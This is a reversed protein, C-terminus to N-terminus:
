FGVEDASADLVDRLSGNGKTAATPKSVPGTLGRVNGRSAAKARNLSQQSQVRAREAAVTDEFTKPNMRRAMAYAEALDTNPDAKYLTLIYPLHDDFDPRLPKGDPGKEDAFRDINWRTSALAQDEAKKAETARISQIESKLAQLEGATRGHQDALYRVAPDDKVGPPLPVQPPPNSGVFLKAPDFGMQQALEIMLTIRDNVDPSVARKHMHAWSQIAAVPHFGMEKISRSIDPDQFIPALANVAQVASANAQSKRTYDAEMESYRRQLMNKADPPLREFVARDEASWHDPPQNSRAQAAPDPPVPTETTPRDPSPAKPEAEGTKADQTKPAFRGREDRARDGESPPAEPTEPNTVDDYAREAIERLSQQPEPAEVGSTQSPDQESPM